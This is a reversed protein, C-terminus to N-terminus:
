VKAGKCKSEHILKEVSTKQNGCRSNILNCVEKRNRRPTNTLCDTKTSCVARIKLILTDNRCVTSTFGLLATRPLRLKCQSSMIRDWKGVVM